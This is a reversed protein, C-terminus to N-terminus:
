FGLSDLDELTVLSPNPESVNNLAITDMNGLIREITIAGLDLNASTESFYKSSSDLQLESEKNDQSLSPAKNSLAEEDMLTLLKDLDQKPIRSKIVTIDSELEAVDSKLVELNNTNTSIDEFVFNNFLDDDVNTPVTEDNVQQHTTTQAVAFEEGLDDGLNGINLEQDISPHADM